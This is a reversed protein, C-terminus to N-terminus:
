QVNRTGNLCEQSYSVLVIIIDNLNQVIYKLIRVNYKVVYDDKVNINNYYYTIIKKINNLFRNVAKENDIYEDRETLFFDSLYIEQIANAIYINELEQNNAIKNYIHRLENSYRNIRHFIVPITILQYELKNLKNFTNPDIFNIQNLLIDLESLEIEIVEEKNTELLYFLGNDLLELIKNKLVKFDM